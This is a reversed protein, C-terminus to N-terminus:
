LLYDIFFKFTSCAGVPFTGDPNQGHGRKNEYNPYQWAHFIESEKLCLGEDCALNVIGWKSFPHSTKHTIHIEGEVDIM